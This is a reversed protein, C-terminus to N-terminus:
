VKATTIKQKILDWNKSKDGAIINQNMEIKRNKEIMLERFFTHYLIVVYFFSLTAPCVPCVPPTWHQHESHSLNNSRSFLHIQLNPDNWGGLPNFVLSSILDLLLTLKRGVPFM